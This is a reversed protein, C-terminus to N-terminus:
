DTSLTPFHKDAPTGDLGMAANFKRRGDLYWMAEHYTRPIIQPVPEQTLYTYYFENTMTRSGTAADFTETVVVIEMYNVDTFIVHANMKILSSVHVPRHFMINSIHDLKPRCKSYSSSPFDILHFDDRM